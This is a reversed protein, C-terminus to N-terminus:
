KGWLVSSSWREQVPGLLRCPLRERRARRGISALTHEESRLEDSELESKKKTRDQGRLLMENRGLMRGTCGVVRMGPRRLPPDHVAAMEVAEGQRAVRFLKSNTPVLALPPEDQCSMIVVATLPALRGFAPPCCRSSPRPM